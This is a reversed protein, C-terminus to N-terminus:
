FQKAQLRKLNQLLKYFKKNNKKRVVQPRSTGDIHIASPLIKKFKNKMKFALIM